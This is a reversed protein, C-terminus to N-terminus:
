SRCPHKATSRKGKACRPLAVRAFSASAAADTTLALSCAPRSGSCAGRWGTFRWGKVPTARLVTLEAYALQLACTAACAREIAPAAVRGKGRISLALVPERAFAATVTMNGNVTVSCEDKTCGAGTWGAFRYGADPEATLDFRAGPEVTAVCEPACADSFGEDPRLSATGNPGSRVILRVFPHSTLWLSNAVNASAPCSSPLHNDGPPGWYDDHGPDLVPTQGAPLAYAFMLDNAPESVHGGSSQPGCGYVAGFTHFLEHGATFAASASVCQSVFVVALQGGGIGCVRDTGAPIAVLYKKDPDRFGAAAIARAVAGHAAGPDILSGGNEALRVFSVDAVGQFTDVRIRTGGTQGALWDNFFALWSGLAGSTDLGADAGDAPLAYIAHVQPGVAEDPRDGATRELARQSGAAVTGAFVLMAGLCAAALLLRPRM